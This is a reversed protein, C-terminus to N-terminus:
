DSLIIAQEPCAMQAQRALPVDSEGIEASKVTGYGADDDEFITPAIEYCRGHGACLSTDITVKM